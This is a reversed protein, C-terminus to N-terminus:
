VATALLKKKSTILSVFEKNTQLETHNAWLEQLDGMGQCDDIEKKLENDSM